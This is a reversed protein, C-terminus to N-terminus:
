KIPFIFTFTTGKGEETEIDMKANLQDSFSTILMTGLSSDQDMEFDKPLGPGNDSIKLLIHGNQKKLTVDLIGHKEKKFAHKYANVVLENIQLGCPIVMDHDAKITDFNFNLAVDHKNETFTDHVAGVLDKIYNGLDIDTLSDTKYLKEHILGISHIRNQSDMLVNKAEESDTSGLQLEILGSVVALNNKIRHHIERLLTDKEQLSKQIEHTKTNVRHRLVFFWVVIFLIGIGLGGLIMYWYYTPLRKFELDDPSRLFLKYSRQEPFEPNYETVV